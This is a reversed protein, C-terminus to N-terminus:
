RSSRCRMSATPARATPPSRGPAASFAVLMGDPVDVIALGPPVPRPGGRGFGHDRAADLIVIRAPPNFSRCNPWSIALASPRTPSTRTSLSRPTSRFSITRAEYQAAYGAFYLFAVSDPGGAAVKDLFGRMTAGIDAQRLNQLETVDYGAARMTEAVLAADAITTNLAPASQYAGNGIVLAVRSQAAAAVITVASLLLAFFALGVLRRM